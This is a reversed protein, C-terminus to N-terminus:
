TSSQSEHESEPDPLPVGLAIVLENIARQLEAVFGLLEEALEADSMSACSTYDPPLEYDFVNSM